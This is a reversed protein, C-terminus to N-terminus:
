VVNLNSVKFEEPNIANNDIWNKLNEKTQSVFPIEKPKPKEKPKSSCSAVFVVAILIAMVSLIKKM